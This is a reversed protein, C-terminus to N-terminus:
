QLLCIFTWLRFSWVSGEIVLLWRYKTNPQCLFLLSDRARPNSSLLLSHCPVLTNYFCCLLVSNTCVDNYTVAALGVCYRIKDQRLKQKFLPHKVYSILSPVACPADTKRHTNTVLMCESTTCQSIVSTLCRHWKNDHLCFDIVRDRIVAFTYFPYRKHVM